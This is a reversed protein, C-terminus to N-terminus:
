QAAPDGGVEGGGAGGRAAEEEEAIRQVREPPRLLEAGVVERAHRERHQEHLARAVGEAVQLQKTGHEGPQRARREVGDFTAVV